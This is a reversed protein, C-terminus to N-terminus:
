ATDFLTKDPDKLEEVAVEVVGQLSDKDAGCTLVGPMSKFCIESCCDSDVSCSEGDGACGSGEESKWTYHKLWNSAFFICDTREEAIVTDTPMLFCAGRGNLEWSGCDGIGDYSGRDFGTTPGCEGEERCDICAQACQELTFRGSGDSLHFNDNVRNHCYGMGRYGPLMWFGNGNVTEPEFCELGSCTAQTEALDAAAIIEGSDNKEDLSHGRLEHATAGKSAITALLTTAISLKMTSTTPQHQKRTSNPSTSGISKHDWNM